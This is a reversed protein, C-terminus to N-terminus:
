QGRGRLRAVRLGAALALVLAAAIAQPRDLPEEVDVGPALVRVSEARLTLGGGDTPDTRLVTGVVEIVAGRRGARGPVGIGEVASAPLWVSLGSNLGSRSRHAPLPGVELAYADDNVLAWAGGDRRLLDGVVEGVYTVRAGDFAVPCALVASATVRGAVPPVSVGSGAAAPQGRSPCGAVDLATVAPPPLEIPAVAAAPRDALRPLAVAGTVVLALAVHLGLLATVVPRRSPASM